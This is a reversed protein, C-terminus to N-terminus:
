DLLQMRVIRFPLTEGEHERISIYDGQKIVHTDLRFLPENDDEGPAYSFAWGTRTHILEGKEDAAGAWFRRVVCRKRNARWAAEDLHGSADVPAVLEYGRDGSGEPFEDTRALELRVKYFTM